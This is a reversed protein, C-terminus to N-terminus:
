FPIDDDEFSGQGPQPCDKPPERKPKANGANKEGREPASGLLQVVDVLVKTAYREIGEKDTFKDTRMKGEIYLQGAKHCYEGVIEAVKGFATCRIWETREQKEGNKDKWSENVALSFSAVATGAGTYRVEPDGGLTGVVICKNIGRM